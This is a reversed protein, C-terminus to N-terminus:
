KLKTESFILSKLMKETFEDKCLCDGLSLHKLLPNNAILLDFHEMIDEHYEVQDSRMLKAEDLILTHLHTCESLSKVLARLEQPAFENNVCSLSELTSSSNDIITAIHVAGEKVKNRDFAIGKLKAFKVTCIVSLGLEGLGANNIHLVELNSKLSECELFNTNRLVDYGIANDSLYLNQISVDNNSVLNHFISFCETVIQKTLSVFCDSLDLSVINKNTFILQM